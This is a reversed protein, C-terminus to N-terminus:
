DFIAVTVEVEVMGSSLDILRTIKLNGAQYISKFRDQDGKHELRYDATTGVAIM